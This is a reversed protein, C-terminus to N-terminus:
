ILRLKSAIVYMVGHPVVLYLKTIEQHPWTLPTAMRRTTAQLMILNLLNHPELDPWAPCM